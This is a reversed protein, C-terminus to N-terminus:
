LQFKNELGQSGVRILSHHSCLQRQSSAGHPPRSPAPGCPPRTGLRKDETPPWTLPAALGVTKFVQQAWGGRQGCLQGLRVRVSEGWVSPGAELGSLPCLGRQLDSFMLLGAFSVALCRGPSLHQSCEWRKGAEGELM